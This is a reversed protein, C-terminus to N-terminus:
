ESRNGRRREPSKRQHSPCPAAGGTGLALVAIAALGACIASMVLAANGDTADDNVVPALASLEATGLYLVIVAGYVPRAVFAFRAV